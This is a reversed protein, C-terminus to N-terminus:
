KESRVVGPNSWGLALLAILSHQRPEPESQWEAKIDNAHLGRDEHKNGWPQLVAATGGDEFWCKVWPFPFPHVNSQLLWEVTDAM